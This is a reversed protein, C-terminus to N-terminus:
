PVAPLRKLVDDFGPPPTQGTLDTLIEVHHLPLVVRDTVGELKTSELHVAGDGHGTQFQMLLDLRELVLRRLTESVPTEGESSRVHDRLTELAVPDVFGKNGALISYCVAPNRELQAMRQMWLSDPHLDMGARGMGDGFLNMVRDPDLLNMTQDGLEVLFRLSALESGKFPPVCAILRKVGPVALDPNELMWQSILGGMSVTVLSIDERRHAPLAHLAASLRKANREIRDDNPYEFFYVDYGRKNLQDCSTRFFRRSSDLGHVIVVVPGRNSPDSLHHLTYPREIRFLRVFSEEFDDLTQELRVQDIRLRVGEVELLLDVGYPNLVWNWSRVTWATLKRNLQIKRDPFDAPLEVASGSLELLKQFVERSRLQGDVYPVVTERVGLDSPNEGFAFLTFPILWWLGHGRMKM